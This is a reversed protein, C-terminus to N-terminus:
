SRSLDSAVLLCIDSPQWYPSRQIGHMLFVPSCLSFPQFKPPLGELQMVELLDCGPASGPKKTHLYM